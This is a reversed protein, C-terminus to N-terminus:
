SLTLQPFCHNSSMASKAPSCVQWSTVPFIVGGRLLCCVLSPTVDEVLLQRNSANVLFFFGLAPSKKGANCQTKPLLPLLLKSTFPNHKPNRTRCEWLVNSCQSFMSIYILNEKGEGRASVM